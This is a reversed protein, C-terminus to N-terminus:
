PQRQAIPIAADTHPSSTVHPVPPPAEAAPPPVPWAALAPCRCLPVLALSLGLAVLFPTALAYM